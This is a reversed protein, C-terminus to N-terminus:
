VHRVLQLLLLIGLTVPIAILLLVGIIIVAVFGWDKANSRQGSMAARYIALNKTNAKWVFDFLDGLFPVMGVLSDIAVNTMMRALAAQPVGNRAAHAIIYASILGSALDGFGPVLGLIGDLGFSVPGVRIWRDMMRELDLISDPIDRSPHRPHLIEPQRITESEPRQDIPM